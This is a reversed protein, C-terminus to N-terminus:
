WCYKFFRYENCVTKLDLNHLISVSEPSAIRDSNNQRGESSLDVKFPFFQSCIIEKEFLLPKTHLFAFVTLRPEEFTM